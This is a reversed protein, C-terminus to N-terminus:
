QPTRAVVAGAPDEPQLWKCAANECLSALDADTLVREAPIAGLSSALVGAGDAIHAAGLHHLLEHLVVVERDELAVHPSIGVWMDAEAYGAWGQEDLGSSWFLPAGAYDTESVDVQVGTAVLIRAAAMTAWSYLEHDAAWVRITTDPPPAPEAWTPAPDALTSSCAALLTSAAILITRSIM